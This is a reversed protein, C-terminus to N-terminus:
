LPPMDPGLASAPAVASQEDLLRVALGVVRAMPIAMANGIHRESSGYSGVFAYRSPFTQLLAAERLTLGRNLWPHAFRGSSVTTCRTTMTPAPEGARLRGYVGRAQRGGGLRTHCRLRLAPPLDHRDGGPPVTQLRARALPSLTRSRTLPDSAAGPLAAARALVAGAPGAPVISGGPLLDNLDAPLCSASRDRLAVLIMSRRRQPVGCAAADVLRTAAGYGCSQLRALLETCHPHRLFRPVNEIVVARPRLEETFRLVELALDNRADGARRSGLSSFGQCPPAAALLALEGRDLQLRERLTSPYVRRIDEAIVTAGPHNLAYTAAADPDSEVAADIRYGAWALGLSFGGAGAFLDLSRPACQNMPGPYPM